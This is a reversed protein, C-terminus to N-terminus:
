HPLALVSKRDPMSPLAGKVQVCLSAAAAEVLAVVFAATFTDRAGITDLVKPTSILPQKIPEEGEVSFASGKAGLKVLVQKVGMKHCKVVAQTIQEFSETAMGTLHGLESENPSLIDIFDLLEQPFLADM